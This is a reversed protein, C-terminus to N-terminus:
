FELQSKHDELIGAKIRETKEEMGRSKLLGAYANFIDEDFYLGLGHSNIFSTAAKDYPELIEALEDWAEAKWLSIVQDKIPKYHKYLAVREGTCRVIAWAANVPATAESYVKLVERKNMYCDRLKVEIGSEKLHAFYEEYPLYADVVRKTNDPKFNFTKDQWGEGYMVNFYTVADEPIMFKRGEFEVEQLKSFLGKPFSFKTKGSFSMFYLNKDESYDQQSAEVAEWMQTTFNDGKVAVIRKMFKNRISKGWSHVGDYKLWDLFMRYARTRSECVLPRIRVNLGLEKCGIDQESDYYLSNVNVYKVRLDRMENNTHLSELKRHKWEPKELIRELKFIDRLPMFIEVSQIDSMFGDGRYACLAIERSIYYKMDNEACIETLEDLMGMIISQIETM